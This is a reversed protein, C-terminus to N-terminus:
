VNERIEEFSTSREPFTELDTWPQGESFDKVSITTWDLKNMDMNMKVIYMYIYIINSQFYSLHSESIFLEEIDPM